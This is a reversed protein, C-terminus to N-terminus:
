KMRSSLVRITFPPNTESSVPAGGVTAALNAVQQRPQRVLDYVVVNVRAPDVADITPLLGWNSSGLRVTAMQGPEVKLLPTPGDPWHLELQVFPKAPVPTAIYDAWRGGSCRALRGPELKVAVIAGESYRRGNDDFCINPDTSTSPAGISARSVEPRSFGLADEATRAAPNPTISWSSNNAFRIEQLACMVQSRAGKMRAYVDSTPM